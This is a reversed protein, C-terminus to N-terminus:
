SSKKLGIEAEHVAKSVDKGEVFFMEAAVMFHTVCAVMKLILHALQEKAYIHDQKILHLQLAFGSEDRMSVWTGLEQGLNFYNVLELKKTNEQNKYKEVHAAILLYHVTNMLHFHCGTDSTSGVNWTFHYKSGTSGATTETPRSGGTEEITDFM